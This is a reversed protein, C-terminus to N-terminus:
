VPKKLFNVLFSTVLTGCVIALLFVPINGIANSAMVIPGSDSVQGVMAIASAVMSEIM